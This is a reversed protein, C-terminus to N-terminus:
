LDFQTSEPTAKFQHGRVYDIDIFAFYLGSLTWLLLQCSTVMAVWRHWRRVQRQRHLPGVTM